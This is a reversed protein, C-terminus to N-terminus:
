GDEEKSETDQSEKQEAEYAQLDRELQEKELRELAELLNRVSPRIVCAPLGSNNVLSVLAEDFEAKLITVTKM